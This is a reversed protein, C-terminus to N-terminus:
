FAIMGAAELLRHIVSSNVFGGNWFFGDIVVYVIFLGTIVSGLDETM